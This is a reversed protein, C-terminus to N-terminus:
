QMLIVVYNWKQIGLIIVYQFVKITAIAKNLTFKNGYKGFNSVACVYYKKNNQISVTIILRPKYLAINPLIIYM